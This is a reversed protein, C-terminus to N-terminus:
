GKAARVVRGSAYCERWQGCGAGGAARVARAWRVARECVREAGASRRGRRAWGM